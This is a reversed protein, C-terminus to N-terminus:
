GDGRVEPPCTTQQHKEVAAVVEDAAEGLAVMRNTGLVDVVLERVLAAHAPACARIAELGQETIAIEPYRADCAVKAILGRKEMRSLHHSMRSKEWQTAEGLEFARMRGTASESLNVLIEFDSASLGFERQLHRSLHAELRKWMLLHSRWAQQEDESLWPENVM